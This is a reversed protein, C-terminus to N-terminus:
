SYINMGHPSIQIIWGSSTSSGYVKVCMFGRKPHVESHKLHINIKWLNGFSAAILWLQKLLLFGFRQLNMHLSKHSIHSFFHIDASKKNQVDNQEMQSWLERNIRMLKRSKLKQECKKHIAPTSYGVFVFSSNSFWLSVFQKKKRRRSNNPFWSEGVSKM